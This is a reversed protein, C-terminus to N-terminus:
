SYARRINCYVRQMGKTYSLSTKIVQVRVHIYEGNWAHVRAHACARVSQCVCVGCVCMMLRRHQIVCGAVVVAPASSPALSFLFPILPSCFFEFLWYHRFLIVAKRLFRERTMEPARFQNTMTAGLKCANLFTVNIHSHVGPIRLFLILLCICVFLWLCESRSVWECYCGCLRAM